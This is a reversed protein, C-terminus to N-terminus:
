ATIRLRWNFVNTQMPRKDARNPNNSPARTCYRKTSSKPPKSMALKGNAEKVGTTHLQRNEQAKNSPKAPGEIIPSILTEGTRKIRLSNAGIAIASIQNTNIAMPVHAVRIAKAARSQFNASEEALQRQLTRTSVGLHQAVQEITHRGRPLLLHVARLVARAKHRYVWRGVPATLAFPSALLVLVAIAALVAREDRSVDDPLCRKCPRLGAARAAAGDAFFRVNTRAPHRAACSPRCYIGTTLVGTVFRGDFARDRALVATWADDANIMSATM